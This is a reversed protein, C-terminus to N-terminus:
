LLVSCMLGFCFKYVRAPCRINLDTVTKDGTSCGFLHFHQLIVKSCACNYGMHSTHILSGIM